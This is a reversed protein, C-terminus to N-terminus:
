AMRCSASRPKRSASELLEGCAKPPRDIAATILGVTTCPRAPRGIHRQTWQDPTPNRATAAYAGIAREIATVLSVSDQVSTTDFCCSCLTGLALSMM